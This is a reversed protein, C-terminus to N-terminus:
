YNMFIFFVRGLYWVYYVIDALKQLLVAEDHLNGSSQWILGVSKKMSLAM